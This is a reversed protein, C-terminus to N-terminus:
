ENNAGVRVIAFEEDYLGKDRIFVELGKVYTTGWKGYSEQQRKYRILADKLRESDKESLKLFLSEAKHRIGKKGYWEWLIEFKRKKELTKQDEKKEEGGSEAPTGEKTPNTNNKETNSKPITNNTNSEDTVPLVTHPLVTYPSVAYPTQFIEYDYRFKGGVDNVRTRKIYGFKELEKLSARVGDVGDSSRACIEKMYFDWGDPRSCLYLYVGKSRYSLREDMIVANSAITFNSKNKLKSVM